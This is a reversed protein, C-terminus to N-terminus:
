YQPRKGCVIGRVHLQVGSALFNRVRRQGNGMRIGVTGRFRPNSRM